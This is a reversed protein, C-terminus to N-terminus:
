VTVDEISKIRLRDDIQCSSLVELIREAAHGDGYPNVMGAPSTRFGEMAEEVGALIASVSLKVDIVNGARM